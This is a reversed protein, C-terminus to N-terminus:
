FWHLYEKLQAEVLFCSGLHVFTMGRFAVPGCFFFPKTFAVITLMRKKQTKWLLVSSSTKYEMSIWYSSCMSHMTRVIENYDKFSYGIGFDAFGNGVIWSPVIPFCCNAQLKNM